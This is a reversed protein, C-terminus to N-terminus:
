INGRFACQTLANFMSSMNDSEIIQKTKIDEIKKVRRSFERQLKIPPLLIPTVNLSGVNLHKQIQGRQEGLVMQKGRESNFYFCLYLPDVKSKNPTAILIDIANVGDLEKPVVAATGPQGSRVLLLDDRWVRTKALKTENDEQSFYVLNETTVKNARVNLSRLAPVGSDRYYSAPRVVIGVTIRECTEECTVVEWGKPNTLPDGFMEIFTSQLFKETLRISEQRKRRIADAKDLITAIRRQDEFRPLLIKINAVQSPRARLLSGGVGSVTAMFQDHFQDSVIAHKLYEAHILDSRFVIWEGSAIVRRGRNKGVIWARRIHPVIKSLLVDGPQVIQKASGIKSGAIVEPQGSDFAPISYLDFVENPFQSPDVSGLKTAMIEGLLITSTSVSM